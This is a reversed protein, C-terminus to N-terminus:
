GLELPEFALLVKLSMDGSVTGGYETVSDDVTSDASDGMHAPTAGDLEVTVV